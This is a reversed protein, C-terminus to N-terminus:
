AVLSQFDRRAATARQEDGCTEGDGQRHGHPGVDAQVM